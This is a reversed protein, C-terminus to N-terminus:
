ERSREPPTRGAYPVPRITRFRYGGDGGTTAQGYGQFAADRPQPFEALVTIDMAAAASRDPRLSSADALYRADGPVSLRVWSPACLANAAFCLGAIPLLRTM